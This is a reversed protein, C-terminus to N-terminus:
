VERTRVDPLPSVPREPRPQLTTHGDSWSTVDDLEPHSTFVQNRDVFPSPEDGTEPVVMVDAIRKLQIGINHLEKILRDVELNNM